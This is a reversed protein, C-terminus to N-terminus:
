GAEIRLKRLYYHLAQRSLGALKAADTRNGGCARLVQTLYERLFVEKAQEFPVLPVSTEAKWPLHHVGLRGEAQCRITAQLLVSELERINGPWTHQSLRFLVEPAVTVQKLGLQSSFTILIENVIEPLDELRERLAPVELTVTALRDYLDRRFTGAEVAQWLNRNTAAVFRVDVQRTRAGGVRRVEKQQLLRLLKAQVALPLEGVEDLFLTGGEAEEVLGPRDRDAGTFAGRVVGFLEAELLAEPMGACNIAVFQGTRGSARHIAKAVREKGTGPEGQILVTVPLPALRDIAQCLARVKESKGTIGHKSGSAQQIPLPARGLAFTLVALLGEDAVEELEVDFGSLKGRWSGAAEGVRLLEKGQYCVRLGTLNTAEMLYRWSAAQWFAAPDALLAELGQFVQVWDRGLQRELLSLWGVLGLERLMGRLKPLFDRVKSLLDVGWVPALLLARALGLAAEPEGKALAANVLRPLEEPRIKAQALLRASFAMGWRPPLDQPPMRGERSALLAALLRRESPEAQGLWREVEALSRASTATLLAVHSLVAAVGQRLHEPLPLSALAEELAKASRTAQPLHGQALWSRAWEVAAFVHGQLRGGGDGLSALIEQAKQWRLRDNALVARNFRVSRLVRECGALSLWAEAAAFLREAALPRDLLMATTGADAFLEGLRLPNRGSGSQLAHKLFQQAKAYDGRSFAAIGLLHWARQRVEKPYQSDRALTKLREHDLFYLSEVAVALSTGANALAKAACERAQEWRGVREAQRARILWWRSQLRQPLSIVEEVRFGELAAELEQMEGVEAAWWAKLLEGRPGSLEDVLNQAHPLWGTTLAAEVVPAALEKLHEALPALALVPEAEGVELQEECWRLLHSSGEGLSARWAWVLPGDPLKPLLERWLKPNAKGLQDPWYRGFRQIVLSFRQLEELAEEGSVTIAEDRTLGLISGRLVALLKAATPSLLGEPGRVKPGEPWWANRVVQALALGMARPDEPSVGALPEATEGQYAEPLLCWFSGPVSLPLTKVGSLPLTTIEPKGEDRALSSGQLSGLEGENFSAVVVGAQVLRAVVSPEPCFLLGCEKPPLFHRSWLFRGWGEPHALAKRERDRLLVRALALAPWSWPDIKDPVEEWTERFEPLLRALIPKLSLWPVLEGRRGRALRYSLTPDELSPNPWHSLQLAVGASTKAFRATQWLRRAPYFGQHLCFSLAALLQSALQKRQLLPLAYGEALPFSAAPTEQRPLFPADWLALPHLGSGSM